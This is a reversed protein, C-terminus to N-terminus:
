SLCRHLLLELRNIKLDTACDGHGNRPSLFVKVLKNQKVELFGSRQKFSLNAKNIVVSTNSPYVIYSNKLFYCSCIFFDLCIKVTVRLM